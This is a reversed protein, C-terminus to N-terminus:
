RPRRTIVHSVALLLFLYMVWPVESPSSHCGCNTEVPVDPAPAAPRVYCAEKGDITKCELGSGACKTCDTTSCVRLEPFPPGFCLGSECENDNTCTTGIAAKECKLTQTNCVAPAVCAPECKRINKETPPTPEGADPTNSEGDGVAVKESVTDGPEPDMCFGARCAKGTPCDNAGACSKICRFGACQSGSPCDKDNRCVCGKATGLNLCSTATASCESNEKCSAVCVGQNLASNPMYCTTGSPCTKTRTCRQLGSCLGDVCPSGGFCAQRIDCQCVRKSSLLVCPEGGICNADNVCAPLCTGTTQGRLIGCAYGPACQTEKTCPDGLEPRDKCVGAICVKGNCDNSDKCFCVSLTTESSAPVCPSVQNCSLGLCIELCRATDAGPPKACMYPVQCPRADDCEEGLKRTGKCQGGVCTTKNNSCDASSKCFCAGLGDAQVKCSEGHPCKPALANCEHLCIGEKSGNSLVCVLGPICPDQLSCTERYDKKPTQACVSSTAFAFLGLLVVFVLCASWGYHHRSRSLGVLSPALYHLM